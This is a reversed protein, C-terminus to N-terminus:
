EAATISEVTVEFSYDNRDGTEKERKDAEELARKRKLEDVGALGTAGENEDHLGKEWDKNTYKVTGTVKIRTMYGHCNGDADYIEVDSGSFKKPVYFSNANQGFTMRLDAIKAATSQGAMSHLSLRIRGNMVMMSRPVAIYGQLEVTQGDLDYSSNLKKVTEKTASDTGCGAMCAVAIVALALKIARKM